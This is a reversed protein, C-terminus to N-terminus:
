IEQQNFAVKFFLPLHNGQARLASDSNLLLAGLIFFPTRVLRVREM